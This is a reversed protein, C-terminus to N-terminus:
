WVTNVNRSAVYIKHTDPNVAIEDPTNAADITKIVTDNRGDIVSIANLLTNSAYILNTEPNIAVYSAENYVVSLNNSKGDIICIRENEGTM